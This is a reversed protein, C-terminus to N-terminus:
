APGLYVDCLAKQRGCGDVIYLIWIFNFNKRKLSSIFYCFAKCAPSGPENGLFVHDGLCLVLHYDWWQWTHGGFRVGCVCVFVFMVVVPEAYGQGKGQRGVFINKFSKWLKEPSIMDSQKAGCSFTVDANAPTPCVPGHSFTCCSQLPERTIESLRWFMGSLSTPYCDPYKLCGRAESSEISQTIM